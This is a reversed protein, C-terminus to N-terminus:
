ELPIGHVDRTLVAESASSAVLVGQLLFSVLAVLSETHRIVAYDVLLDLFSASNITGVSLQAQEGSISPAHIIGSTM